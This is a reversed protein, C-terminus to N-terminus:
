SNNILSKKPTIMYIQILWINMYIYIGADVYVLMADVYVLMCSVYLKHLMYRLLGHLM